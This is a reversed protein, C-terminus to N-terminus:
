SEDNEAYKHFQDLIAYWFDRQMQYSERPDADFIQIVRTTNADVSEFSIQVSRGDELRSIINSEPVIEQYTGKYDLGFDGENNETRFYFQGGRRLENQAEACSWGEGPFYWNKIHEAETYLKWVKSIPALITIEIRIPEM